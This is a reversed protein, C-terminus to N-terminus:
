RHLVAPWNADADEIHADADMKWARHIVQSHTLFLRGDRIDWATPDGSVVMGVAVGYACHGGYQPAFAYPNAEFLDRNRRSAFQWIAGKWMLAYAPSGPVARKRTFYAVPDYGGIAVGADLYYISAHGALAPRAVGLAALAAASCLFARRSTM